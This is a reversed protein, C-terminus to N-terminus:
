AASTRARLPRFQRNQTLEIYRAVDQLRSEHGNIHNTWVDQIEAENEYYNVGRWQNLRITGDPLRSVSFMLGLSSLRDLFDKIKFDSM